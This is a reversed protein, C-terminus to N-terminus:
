RLWHSEAREFSSIASNCYSKNNMIPMTSAVYRSCLNALLTLLRKNVTGNDNFGYTIYDELTHIEANDDNIYEDLFDCCIQYSKDLLADENLTLVADTGKARFTEITDIFM